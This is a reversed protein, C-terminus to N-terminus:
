ATSAALGLSRASRSRRIAVLALLASLLGFIALAAAAAIVPGVAGGSIIAQMGSVGHTLPLFPSVVQFPQSLVQIPYLGGTATIQVALLFLSVVLGARGFVVTLLHHFATFSVATLLSFLLTAPLLSWDVGIAVHLLVVLLV